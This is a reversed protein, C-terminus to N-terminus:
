GKGKSFDGWFFIVDYRKIQGKINYAKINNLTEFNNNNKMVEERFDKSDYRDDPLDDGDYCFSLLKKLTVFVRDEKKETVLVQFIM